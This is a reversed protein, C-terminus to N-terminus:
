CFFCLLHLLQADLPQVYVDHHPTGCLDVGVVVVVDDDVAACCVCSPWKTGLRVSPGGMM